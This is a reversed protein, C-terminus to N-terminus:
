LKAYFGITVDHHPMAELFIYLTMSMFLTVDMMFLVNAREIPPFSVKEMLIPHRVSNSGNKTDWVTKLINYRGKQM